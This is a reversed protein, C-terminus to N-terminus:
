KKAGKKGKGKGKKSKKESAKKAAKAQLHEKVRTQIVIAASTQKDSEEDCLAALEALRRREQEQARYLEQEADWRKQLVQLNQLNMERKQTIEALEKEKAESDTQYRSNWDELQKVLRDHQASLFKVSEKHVM